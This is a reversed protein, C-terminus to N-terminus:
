NSFYTQLGSARFIRKQIHSSICSNRIYKIYHDWIHGTLALFCPSGYLETGKRFWYKGTNVGSTVCCLCVIMYVKRNLVSLNNLSLLLAEKRREERSSICSCFYFSLALSTLVKLRLSGTAKLTNAGDTM